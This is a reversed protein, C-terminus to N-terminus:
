TPVETIPSLTIVSPLLHRAASVAEDIQSHEAAEGAFRGLNIIVRPKSSHSYNQNFASKPDLADLLARREGNAQFGDPYFGSVIDAYSMAVRYPANERNSLANIVGGTFTPLIMEARATTEDLKGAEIGHTVITNVSRNKRAASVTYYPLYLVERRKFGPLTNGLQEQFGEFPQGLVLRGIGQGSQVQKAQAPVVVAEPVDAATENANRRPRSGGLRAMIQEIEDASLQGTYNRSTRVKHGSNKDRRGM